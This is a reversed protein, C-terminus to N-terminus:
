FSEAVKFIEEDELVKKNRDKGHKDIEDSDTLPEDFLLIACSFRERDFVVRFRKNVFSDVPKGSRNEEILNYSIFKKKGFKGNLEFSFNVKFFYDKTRSFHFTDISEIRGAAFIYRKPDDNTIVHRHVLLRNKEPRDPNYAVVFQDGFRYKLRYKLYQHELFFIDLFLENNAAFHYRISRPSFIYHGYITATAEHKKKWWKEVRPTSFLTKTSQCATLSLLLLLIVLIKKM